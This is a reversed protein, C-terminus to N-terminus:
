CGYKEKIEKVNNQCDICPCKAWHAIMNRPERRERCVHCTCPRTPNLNHRYKVGFFDVCDIWEDKTQIVM